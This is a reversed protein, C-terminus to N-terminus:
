TVKPSMSLPRRPAGSFVDVKPAPLPPLPEGDDLARVLRRFAKKVFGQPPHRIALDFHPPQSAKM